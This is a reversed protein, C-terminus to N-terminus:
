TAIYVGNMTIQTAGTSISSGTSTTVIKHYKYFETSNVAASWLVGVTSVSNTGTALLTFNSGDNSGFITYGSIWATTSLRNTIDISSVKLANPNYLTFFIGAGYIGSLWYSSSNNDVALYATGTPSETASVAFSAGGLTGNASLAPQVFTTEVGGYTMYELEWYLSSSIWISKAVIVNRVGSLVTTAYANPAKGYNRSSWKINSNTITPQGSNATTFDLICTVQKATDTVTPLTITNTGSFYATSIKNELLTLDTTVEDYNEFDVVGGGSISALDCLYQWETGVTLANGANDDTLSGYLEFTGTKKVISGIYYTTASDYESVGEQLAYAGQYSLVKLLGNMEQLAPYRNGSVLAESWGDLWASLGQITAVDATELKSGAVASGFQGIEDAAASDAFVKAPVRTLKAM